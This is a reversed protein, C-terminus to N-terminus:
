SFILSCCGMRKNLFEINKDLLFVKDHVKNTSLICILFSLEIKIEVPYIQRKNQDPSVMRILFHFISVATAVLQTTEKNKNAMYDCQGYPFKVGKIIVKYTDILKRETNVNTLLIRSVKM